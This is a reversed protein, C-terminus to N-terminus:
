QRNSKEGDRGTMGVRLRGTDIEEFRFDAGNENLM